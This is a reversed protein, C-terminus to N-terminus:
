GSNQVATYDILYCDNVSTCAVVPSAGDQNRDQPALGDSSGEVGPGDSSGDVTRGGGGDVPANAAVNCQCGSVLLGCVAVVAVLIRGRGGANWEHYSGAM